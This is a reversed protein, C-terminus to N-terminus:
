TGGMDSGGNWCPFLCLLCVSMFNFCRCVPICTTFSMCEPKPYVHSLSLLGSRVAPAPPTEMPLLHKLRNQFSFLFCSTCFHPACGESHIPTHAFAGSMSSSRSCLFSSALNLPSLGLEKQCGTRPSTNWHSKFPKLLFPRTHKPPPLTCEINNLIM